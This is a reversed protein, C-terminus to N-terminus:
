NTSFDFAEFNFMDKTTQFPNCCVNVLVCSLVHGLFRYGLYCEAGNRGLGKPKTNWFFPFFVLCDGFELKVNFFLSIQILHSPHWSNMWVLEMFSFTRSLAKLLILTNLLYYIPNTVTAIRRYFLSFFYHMVSIFFEQIFIYTILLLIMFVYWLILYLESLLICVCYFNLSM